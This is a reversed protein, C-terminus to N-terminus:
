GEPLENPDNPINNSIQTSNTVAPGTGSNGRDRSILSIVIQGRVPEPDDANNRQLDLRQVSVSYKRRPTVSPIIHTSTHIVQPTETLEPESTQAKSTGVQKTATTCFVQQSDSHVNQKPESNAQVLATTCFVPAGDPSCAGQEQKPKCTTQKATTSSFRSKADLSSASQEQISAGAATCVSQKTEPSQEYKPAGSTQKTVTTCFVEQSSPARSSQELRPTSNTKKVTKSVKTKQPKMVPNVKKSPTKEATSYFVPRTDPSTVAQEETQVKSTQKLNKSSNDQLRNACSSQKLNSKNGVQRSSVATHPQTPARVVQQSAPVRVIQQPDVTCVHGTTPSRVAQVQRQVVQQHTPENIVKLPLSVCVSM